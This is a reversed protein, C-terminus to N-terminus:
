CSRLIINFLVLIFFTFFHINNKQVHQFIYVLVTCSFKIDITPLGCKNVTYYLMIVASQLQAQLLSTTDCLKIMSVPIYFNLCSYPAVKFLNKIKNDLLTHLKSNILALIENSNVTLKLLTCSCLVTCSLTPTVYSDKGIAM